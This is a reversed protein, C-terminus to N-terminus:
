KVPALVYNECHANGYCSEPLMKKLFCFYFIIFFYPRDDKNVNHPVKAGAFSILM